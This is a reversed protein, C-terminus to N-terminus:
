HLFRPRRALACASRTGFAPPWEGFNTAKRRANCFPVPGTEAASRRATPALSGIPACFNEGMGILLHRGDPELAIAALGNHPYDNATELRLIEEQKDALGDGNTDKLLSVKQRTVVYVAGDNRVLLNMAHWVRPLTSRHDLRGDGNSDSMM